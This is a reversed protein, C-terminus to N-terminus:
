VPDQHIVDLRAQLWNQRNKLEQEAQLWNQESQDQRCGTEVYLEYAHRAVAEHTFLATVVPGSHPVNLMKQAALVQRSKSQNRYKNM